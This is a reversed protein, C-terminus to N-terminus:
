NLIIKSSIPMIYENPFDAGVDKILDIACISHMIGTEKMFSLLVLGPSFLVLRGKVIPVHFDPYYLVHRKCRACQMNKTIVMTELRKFVGSEIRGVLRKERSSNTNKEM